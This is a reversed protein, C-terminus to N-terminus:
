AAAEFVDGGVQPREELASAGDLAHGPDLSCYGSGDHLRGGTCIRAVVTALPDSRRPRARGDRLRGGLARAESVEQMFEILVDQLSM